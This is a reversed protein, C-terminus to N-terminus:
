RQVAHVKRIAVKGEQIVFSVGGEDRNSARPRRFQEKGNVLAIVEDGRYRMEYTTWKGPDFPHPVETLREYIEDRKNEKGAGDDERWLFSETVVGVVTGEENSKMATGILFALTGEYRDLIRAEVVVDFDGKLTKASRIIPPRDSRHEGVIQGDEVKWREAHVGLWGDLDKGSFLAIGETDGKAAAPKGIKELMAAAKAHNPRLKLADVLARSALEPDKASWRGALAVLDEVRRDVIQALATGAADVEVLRKKSRALADAYPAPLPKVAEADAVARRWAEVAAGRDGAGFFAEGLGARAPVHGAEEELAKQFQERAESWKKEKLAKEGRQAFFDAAERDASAARPGAIGALAFAALLGLRQGRV